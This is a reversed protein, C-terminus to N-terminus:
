VYCNNQGSELVIRFYIPLTEPVNDIHLGAIYLVILTSEYQYETSMKHLNNLMILLM